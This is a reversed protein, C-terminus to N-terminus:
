RHSESALGADASTSIAEIRVDFENATGFVDEDHLRRSDKVSPVGHSGQPRRLPTYCRRAPRRDFGSHADANLTRTSATQEGVAGRSPGAQCLRRAVKLHRRDRTKLVIGCSYKTIERSTCTLKLTM